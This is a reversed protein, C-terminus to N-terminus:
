IRAQLRIVRDGSTGRALREAEPENAIGAQILIHYGPRERELEDWEAQECVAMVAPESPLTMRYVVWPGAQRPKKMKEEGRAVM